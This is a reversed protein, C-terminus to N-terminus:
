RCDFSSPLILMPLVREPEQWHPGALHPRRCFPFASLRSLSQRLGFTVAGGPLARRNPVGAASAAM